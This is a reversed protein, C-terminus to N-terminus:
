NSLEMWQRVEETGKEKCLNYTSNYALAARDPNEAYKILHGITYCYMFVSSTVNPHSHTFNGDSIVVKHLDDTSLLHSFAAIPTCRM